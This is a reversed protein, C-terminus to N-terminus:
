LLAAITAHCGTVRKTRGAHRERRYSFFDNPNAYTDMKAIQLHHPLIGCQELQHSALAWLDFYTPKIQFRWFEQPLETQYNIFESNVPGLSPSIGVLIKEPKSGFNKILKQITERYINKVQGRWGAHVNALVHNVPDYFIAAQCDAHPIMLALNKNATMLGDCVHLEEAKGEQIFEIRSDHEADISSYEKLNLTALIRKRNELVNNLDDGIESVANLSGFTDQSIGGHRLFVGHALDPHKEFIEFELWQINGKKKRIM